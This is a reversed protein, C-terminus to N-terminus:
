PILTKYKILFYKLKINVPIKLKMIKELEIYNTFSKRNIKQVKDGIFISNCSSSYPIVSSVCFNSKRVRIGLPTLLRISQDFQLPMEESVEDETAAM